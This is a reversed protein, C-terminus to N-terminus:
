FKGDTLQQELQVLSNFIKQAEVNRSYSVLLTSYFSFMFIFYLFGEYQQVRPFIGEFQFLQVFIPFIIFAAAICRRLMKNKFQKSTNAKLKYSVPDIFYVNSGFFHLVRVHLVVFKIIGKSFLM